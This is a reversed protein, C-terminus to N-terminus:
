VHKTSERFTDESTELADFVTLPQHLKYWTTSSAVPRMTEFLFGTNHLHPNTEFYTYGVIAPHDKQHKKFGSEFPVLVLFFFGM